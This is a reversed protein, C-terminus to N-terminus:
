ILPGIPYVTKSFLIEIYTVLIVLEFRALYSWLSTIKGGTLEQIGWSPSMLRSVNTEIHENAM